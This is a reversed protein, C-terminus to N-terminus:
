GPSSTESRSTGNACAIRYPPLNLLNVSGTQSTASRKLSEMNTLTAIMVVRSTQLEVPFYRTDRRMGFNQTTVLKTTNMGLESIPMSELQSGNLKTNKPGSIPQIM